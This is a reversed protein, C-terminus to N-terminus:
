RPKRLVLKSPASTARTSFAVGPPPAAVAATASAKRAALVECAPKVTSQGQRILYSNLLTIVEGRFISSHDPVFTQPLQMIWYPTRNLREDKEVVAWDNGDVHGITVVPKRTSSKTIVIDHSQLAVMNAATLLYYPTNTTQGFLDRPFTEAKPRSFYNSGAFAIKTAADGTSTMSVLLPYQNGAADELTIKDKTLRELLPKAQAAPGAENLLVTLDAPPEISGGAQLQDLQENLLKIIARELVLGGFSHGVVIATSKGAYGEGKVEKLLRKLVDSLEGSGVTQGVAQRNWFTFFGGANAAAGPWGIYIGLTPAEPDNVQCAISDLMRRFGWVNGSAESANNKWGHVFFVVNLKRDTPGKLARILNTAQDVQGANPFLKGQEDFEVYAEYVRGNVFYNDAKFDYAFVSKGPHYNVPKICGALGLVGILVLKKM